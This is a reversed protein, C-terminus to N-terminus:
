ASSIELDGTDRLGPTRLCLRISQCVNLIVTDNKIGDGCRGTECDIANQLDTETLTEGPFCSDSQSKVVSSNLM